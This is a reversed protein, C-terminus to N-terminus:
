PNIEIRTRITLPLVAEVRVRLVTAEQLHGYGASYWGLLPERQGKVQDITVEEKTDFSLRASAPANSIVAGRAGTELQAEPPIQWHLTIERRGEGEFRDELEFVDEARHYVVRRSHRVPVRRRPDGGLPCDGAFRRVAPHDTAIGSSISREDMGFGAKYVGEAGAITGYDFWGYEGPERNPGPAEGPALRVQGLGDVLAVNHAASSALYRGMFGEEDADSYTYYGPDTLLWKGRSQLQINLRALDHHGAGRPGPEFFLWTADPTWDSRFVVHGAWPFVASLAEPAKGQGDGSVFFELVPDPSLDMVRRVTGRLSRHGKAIRPANGQPDAIMAFYRGALPVRKRLVDPVDAGSEAAQAMVDVIRELNNASYNPSLESMSGDPYIHAQGFDAIRRWGEAEAEASGRLFPYWWELVVLSRAISLYQNAVFDRPFDLMMQRHDRAVSVLWEAVVENTLAPADHLMALLYSTRDIRTHASLSTWPGDVYGPFFGEGPLTTERNWEGTYRWALREDGIRNNRIWDLLMAIAEGSWNVDGTVRWAHALPYMWYHRSLHTPWQWDERPATFWNVPDGVDQPEYGGLLSVRRQMLNQRVAAELPYRAAATTEVPARGAPGGPLALPAIFVRALELGQPDLDSPRAGLQEIGAPTLWEDLEALPSRAAEAALAVGLLLLCGTLGRGALGVAYRKM